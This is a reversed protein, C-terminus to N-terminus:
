SEELILVLTAHSAPLFSTPLQLSGHLLIDKHPQMRTLRLLTGHLLRQTFHGPRRALLGAAQTKVDEPRHAVPPEKVNMRPPHVFGYELDVRFQRMGHSEKFAHIGQEILGAIDRARLHNPSSATPSRPLLSGDESVASPRPWWGIM